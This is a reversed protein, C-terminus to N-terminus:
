GTTVINSSIHAFCITYEISYIAFCDQLFVKIYIFNICKEPSFVVCKKGKFNFTKRNKKYNATKKQLKFKKVLKFFVHCIQLFFNFGM